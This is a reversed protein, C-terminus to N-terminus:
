RRDFREMRRRAAAEIRALPITPDVAHALMRMGEVPDRTRGVARGPRDEYLVREWDERAIGLDFWTHANTDPSPQVQVLTHFLDFLVAKPRVLRATPM